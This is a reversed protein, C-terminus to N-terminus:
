HAAADPRGVVRMRVLTYFPRVPRREVLEVGGHTEAWNQLRAFPFEPRLGIARTRRALWREAAAAAGRESYLHSMLILEGGPRVVRACESLVREPNEVLTIVFQCVASNFTADPFALEHADMVYLGDVHRLRERTRRAQAKALMEPSIDIGVVSTRDEDYESLSLGTGVGIELVRGGARNAAAVAARRGHLFVPGCIVDYVPAWGAYARTVTARDLDRSRYTDESLGRM